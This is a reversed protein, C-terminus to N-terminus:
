DKGPFFCRLSMWNVNELILGARGTIDGHDDIANGAWNSRACSDGKKGAESGLKFPYFEIAGVRYTHGSDM